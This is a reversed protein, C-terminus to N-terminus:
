RSKNRMLKRMRKKSSAAMRQNPEVTTKRVNKVLMTSIAQKRPILTPRSVADRRCFKMADEAIWRIPRDALRSHEANRRAREVMNQAADIHAVDAGAAAAALTSGGTYAFLNLVRLPRSLKAQSKTIQAAIWNWNAQQEPFVGVHGFPSPHLEFTLTASPRRHTADHSPSVGIPIEITWKQLANKPTWVGQDGHTREYRASAEKWIDPRAKPLRDATPSPRDLVVDGFRELKRGNGFDLLEYETSANM